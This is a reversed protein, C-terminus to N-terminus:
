SSLVAMKKTWFEPTMISPNCEPNEGLLNLSHRVPILVPYNPASSNTYASWPQTQYNVQLYAVINGISSVPIVNYNFLSSSNQLPRNQDCTEFDRTAQQPTCPRLGSPDVFNVPNGGVYNFGNITTPKWRSGRWPDKGMFAQLSPNYYRARLYVLGTTADHAEGTYGYTTGSTGTQALLKGFPEYTTITEITNGVMEVRVSGLGDALMTRPASGDDVFILDLGFLNSTSTSGDSAVLVQALGVVDNTYTTTAPQAGTSDVQQIRGNAGNYVFVATYRVFFRVPLPSSSHPHQPSVATEWLFRVLLASSSCPHQPSVATGLM